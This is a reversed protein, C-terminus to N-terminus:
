FDDGSVAEHGAITALAQLLNVNTTISLAHVSGDAFVFQVLGPHPSFFNYPESDTANLLHWGMHALAMTPAPEVISIFVPAGPTTRTTGNSMVGAWPAQVFLAAREGIAITRSMGDAVDTNRIRSNRFFAGNGKDPQSGILGGAGYCAAYSNTAADAIYINNKDLVSFIGTDQDFPCTYVRLQVTRAQLNSPSEVPLTYSISNGLNVQEIYPLILAAWGWGPAQPPPFGGGVRNIRQPAGSSGPARYLYGSPLCKQNDHYLRCALGIQRLNNKCSTRAAAERVKQVAPLLIGILVAIIAIVVLLEIL